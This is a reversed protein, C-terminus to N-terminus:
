AEPKSPITYGHSKIISVAVPRRMFSLLSQAAVNNTARKILVMDQRIPSHMSSPVRWHWGHAKVGTQLIQSLAIFGFQANGSQVFRYTQSVNEGRVLKGKIQESLGLGKLVEMAAAGYPALRPNAIALRDFDGAVLISSGDASYQDQTTWLALAGLAYTFRSDSSAIGLEVLQRPKEQDASVLIDFPAGNVIQAFFKGSSGYSLIVRHPSSTEFVEVIQKMPGMFNAAVAVNTTDAMVWKVPVLMLLLAVAAWRLFSNPKALLQVM